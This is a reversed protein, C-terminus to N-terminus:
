SISPDSFRLIPVVSRRSTRHPRSKGANCHLSKLDCVDAFILLLHVVEPYAEALERAFGITPVNSLAGFEGWLDDFEARGPLKGKNYFKADIM